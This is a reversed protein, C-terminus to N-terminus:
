ELNEAQQIGSALPISIGIRTGQGPSSEIKLTGRLMKVRENMGILGFKGAQVTEPSFGIGNDEVQLRIWEPAYVLRVVAKTASAHRLINTIAEQALRYLSTEMRTSVPLPTGLIETQLDFAKNVPLSKV